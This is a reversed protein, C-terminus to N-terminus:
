RHEAHAAVEEKKGAKTGKAPRRSAPESNDLCNIKTERFEKSMKKCNGWRCDGLGPPRVFAGARTVAREETQQGHKAREM